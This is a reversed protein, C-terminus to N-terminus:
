LRTRRASGTGRLGELATDLDSGRLRATFAAWDGRLATPGSDAVLAVAAPWALGAELADALQALVAPWARERERMGRERRTRAWAVPACVGGIVAAVTVAPVGVIWWALLGVVLGCAVIAAVFVYVSIRIGAADLLAVLRVPPAPLSVRADLVVGLWVCGVGSAFVLALLFRM